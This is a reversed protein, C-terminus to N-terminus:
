IVFIFSSKIFTLTTVSPFFKGSCYCVGEVIVLSLMERLEGFAVEEGGRGEM